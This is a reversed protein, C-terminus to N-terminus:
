LQHSKTKGSVPFVSVSDVAKGAVVSPITEIEVSHRLLNRVIVRTNKTLGRSADFNRTFRCIAGVKLILEHPPIGPEQLSNLFEPDEFVAENSGQLEDEISDKSVYCHSNGPVNDLIAMNFEDVFANFPSLIARSICISPDGLVNPPFVFDILEQTSRTHHLRGLDVCEHEYDDGIGDLFASFSPDNRQRISAELRLIEFHSFVAQTRISAKCIATRGGFRVVPAVQIMDEIVHIKFESM